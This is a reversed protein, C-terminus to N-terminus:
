RGAKELVTFIRNKAVVTHRSFSHIKKKGVESSVEEEMVGGLLAAPARRLVMQRKRVFGTM